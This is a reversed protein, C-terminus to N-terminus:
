IAAWFGQKVILWAKKFFKSTFGDPVPAKDDYIDFLAMNIENETVDRIM